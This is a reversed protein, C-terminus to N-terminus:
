VGALIILEINMDPVMLILYYFSKQLLTRGVRLTYNYIIILPHAVGAKSKVDYLKSVFM